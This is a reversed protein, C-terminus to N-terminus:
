RTRARLPAHEAADIGRCFRVFEEYDAPPVVQPLLECSRRLRLVEDESTDFGLANLAMAVSTAMCTYQTRQRVPSVDAKAQRRKM